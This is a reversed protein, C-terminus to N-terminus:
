RVRAQPEVRPQPDGVQRGPRPDEYPPSPPLPRPDVAPPRCSATFGIAGLLFAAAVVFVAGPVPGGVSWAFLLAAPVPVAVETFAGVSSLAGQVTGQETPGASRSLWSMSATGALGGLSGVALLPGLIWDVTTLGTGLLSAAWILCGLIVTTKEGVRRVCRQALLVQALGGVVAAVAIGLGVQGLSWDFRTMAYLAWVVQNIQRAVDSCLRTWTLRGVEARRALRVVATAPNARRLRLPVRHAPALSEPLIFLGYLVNLLALSAACVFPLRQNVEGLLGGLAPGSVFGVSLAASVYSYGRARDAPATIDALYANVVTYTGAFAGALLRGVLLLWVSNAVAHSLYDLGLLTLSALLVPRRGYRDSLGGLVPSALFQMLGYSAALVGLMLPGGANAGLQTVLQPAVPVVLGLGLIDIFVTVLLFPLSAADPSKVPSWAAHRRYM